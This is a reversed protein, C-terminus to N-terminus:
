DATKQPSDPKSMSTGLQDSLPRVVSSSISVMVLAFVGIMQQAATPQNAM